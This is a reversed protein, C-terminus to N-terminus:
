APELVGTVEQQPNPELSNLLTNVKKNKVFGYTPFLVIITCVISLLAVNSYEIIKGAIMMSIPIAGASLSTIIGFVRGRVKPDIVKMMGTNLPVNVLIMTWALGMMCIIYLIYFMLYPIINYTVLVILIASTMFATVMLLLGKKVTGNLSMIKMSGVVFGAALMSVSFAIDAGGIYFANKELETKFLFPIGISFLPSFALNLLLSFLMLQLLGDKSKLYNFGFKLNGIFGTNDEELESEKKFEAKIFMESFGSAMFSIANLLIAIEIGVFEYLFMGVIVGVIAQISGVISQIGNAPQLMDEGVIEPISSGVAPSFFSQNVGAIVAVAIFLYMTEYNTLGMGLLFLTVFFLIGRIYDTIYIVKIKNWRDVLTGAFPSLIVRVLIGSSAVLSFYFAGTNGYIEKPFLSQVYLGAAFGFLTTGISSVLSGAFLLIFSRNRFLDQMFVGREYRYFLKLM